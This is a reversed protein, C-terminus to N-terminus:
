SRIASLADIPRGLDNARVGQQLVFRAELNLEEGGSRDRVLHVVVVLGRNQHRHSAVPFQAPIAALGREVGAVGAQDPGALRM